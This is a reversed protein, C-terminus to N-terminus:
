APFFGARRDSSIGWSCLVPSASLSHCILDVQIGAPTQGVATAPSLTLLGLGGGPQGSGGQARHWPWLGQKDRHEHVLLLKQSPLPSPLQQSLRASTHSPSPELQAQLLARNIKKKTTEKRAKEAGPLAEQQSGIDLGTPSLTHVRHCGRSCPTAASCPEQKTDSGQKCMSIPTPKVASPLPKRLTAGAEEREKHSEWFDARLPNSDWSPLGPWPLPNETRKRLDPHAQSGRM